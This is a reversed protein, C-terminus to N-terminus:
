RNILRNIEKRKKDYLRGKREEIEKMNKNNKIM